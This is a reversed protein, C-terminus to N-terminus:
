KNRWWDRLLSVGAWGVVGLLMLDPFGLLLATGWHGLLWIHALFAIIFGEGAICLLLILLVFVKSLVKNKTM